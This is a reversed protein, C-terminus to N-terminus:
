CHSKPDGFNLTLHPVIKFQPINFSPDVTIVNLTRKCLVTRHGDCEQFELYLYKFIM